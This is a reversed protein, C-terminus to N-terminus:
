YERSGGRDAAGAKAVAEREERGVIAHVFETPAPPAYDDQLSATVQNTIADRRDPLPQWWLASVGATGIGARWHLGM